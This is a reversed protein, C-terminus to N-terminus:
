KNFLFEVHNILAWQLNQAGQKRDAALAAGAIQKEDATAPRGLTGLFLEEILRSDDKYSDLLQQVRSDGKAQVRDNVVSSQMLLMAQLPSGMPPKPPNSRNSQGFTQMFYRVDGAGAPGSMQQAMGMKEGGYNFNGPRGTAV